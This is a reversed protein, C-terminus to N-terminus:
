NRFDETVMLGHVGGDEIGIGVRAFQPRLINARHGPSQMLGEHASAVTPAFALNEGATLFRVHARRMRGFPDVRDPTTHSFYGRAFMDRSHARAVAALEADARLPKLGRRQREGNISQLLQAELDPRDKPDAVEFPLEVSTREDPPILRSYLARRIPAEFVPELRAEAWEAPGELRNALVSDRALAAVTNSFPVTLLLVAAVTATILGNAAGPLVGLLRNAPHLHARAPMSRMLSRVVAGVVIFSVTFLLVFALPLTWEQLDPLQENLWASAPTDAAFAIALSAVLTLLSLAGAVFGRRTGGWAGLLVIAVLAWDLPNFSTTWSLAPVAPMFACYRPQALAKPTPRRQHSTKRPRRARRMIRAM